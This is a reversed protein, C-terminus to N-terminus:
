SDNKITHDEFDVLIDILTKIEDRSLKMLMPCNWKLRSSHFTMFSHECLWLRIHNPLIPMIMYVAIM